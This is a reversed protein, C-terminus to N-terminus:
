TNKAPQLSRRFIDTFKEVYYNTKSKKWFAFYNRKVQRGNQFLPIRKIEASPSELNKTDEVPVFGRNGAVMLRGVELNEAFLFQVGFGIVNKYYEQESHRYEEPSIIICPIQKLDEATITELSSMKNRANIEIFCNCEVLPLCVFEKWSDYSQDSFVVDIKDFYLLDFLEKHTGNQVHIAIEHYSQSFEAVAQRLEYADNRRLYGIRLQFKRGEGIRITENRLIEIKYMMECGHQYFYEGAPTLRFSRNERHLLEVCLENELAKIQQSIASQSIYCREAAGTFSNCEVVAIFYEIQKLLMIHGEAHRSKSTIDDKSKGFTLKHRICLNYQVLHM